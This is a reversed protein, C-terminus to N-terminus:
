REDDSDVRTARVLEGRAEFWRKGEDSLWDVRGNRFEVRWLVIRANHVRIATDNAVNAQM